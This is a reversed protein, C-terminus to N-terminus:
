LDMFPMAQFLKLYKKGGETKRRVKGSMVSL